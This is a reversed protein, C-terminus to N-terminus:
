LHFSCSLVKHVAKPQSNHARHSILQLSLPIRLSWTLGSLPSGFSSPEFELHFSYSLAIICHVVWPQLAIFLKLDHICHIFGLPPTIRHSSWLPNSLRLSLPIGWIFRLLLRFFSYFSSSWTTPELHWFWLTLVLICLRLLLVFSCNQTIPELHRSIYFCKIRVIEIILLSFLESSDVRFALFSIQHLFFFQFPSLRLLLLFSYSQTRFVLVTSSSILPSSRM